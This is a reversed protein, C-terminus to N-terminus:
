LFGSVCTRFLSSRASSSFRTLSEKGSSYLVSYLLCNDSICLPLFSAKSPIVSASVACESVECSTSACLTSFIASFSKLAVNKSCSLAHTLFTIRLKKLLIPSPSKLILSVSILTSKLLNACSKARVFLASRLGYSPTSLSNGASAINLLPSISPM